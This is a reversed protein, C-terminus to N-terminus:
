TSYRMTASGDSYLVFNLARAHARMEFATGEGLNLGNSPATNDYKIYFERSRSVNMHGSPQYYGPYLQFTVMYANPDVPAASQDGYMLPIYDSLMRAPVENYLPVSHASISIKQVLPRAQLYQVDISAAASLTCRSAHSQVEGFRHWGDLYALSAANSTSYSASSRFGVYIREVPFRLDHLQSEGGALSTLQGKVQRLHVRVLSFGIRKIFVDHVEPNVFINNFWLDAQPLGAASSSMTGTAATSVDTNGDTHDTGSLKEGGHSVSSVLTALAAITIQIYRQGNPISVSPVSVSFDKNFWFLLPATIELVDTRQQGVTSAHNANNKPTQYGCAVDVHFGVKNNMASLKTGLATADTAAASVGYHRLASGYANAVSAVTETETSSPQAPVMLGKEFSQQGMCRAYAERKSASLEFQRFFVYEFTGFHDMENSSVRFLVKPLAAEGVWSVWRWAADDSSCSVPNSRAHFMMDAFFDGYTPIDWTGEQAFDLAGTPKIKFYEFAMSAFPKYHANVFVIHTKELDMITPTPNRGAAKRARKIMSIRTNLLETASLLRDAKGDNNIITYIAGSSM